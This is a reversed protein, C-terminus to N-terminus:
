QVIVKSYSSSYAMFARRIVVIIIATAIATPPTSETAVAALAARGLVKPASTGLVKTSTYEGGAVM